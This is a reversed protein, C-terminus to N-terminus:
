HPSAVAFWSTAHSNLESIHFSIVYEVLRNLIVSETAKAEATPGAQENCLSHEPEAGLEVVEM